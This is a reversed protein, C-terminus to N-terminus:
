QENYIDDEENDWWDYSKDLVAPSSVKLRDKLHEMIKRCEKDTLYDLQKIIDEVSQM